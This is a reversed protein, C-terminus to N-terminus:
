DFMSLDPGSLFSPVEYFKRWYARSIARRAMPVVLGAAAAAFIQGVTPTNAPLIGPFIASLAIRPPASLPEEGCNWRAKANM